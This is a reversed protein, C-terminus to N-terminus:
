AADWLDVLGHSVAKWGRMPPEVLGAIATRGLFDHLHVAGACVDRRVRPDADCRHDSPAVVEETIKMFEWFERALTAKSM